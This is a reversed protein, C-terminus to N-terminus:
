GRPIVVRQLDPSLTRVFQQVDSVRLKEALQPLHGAVHLAGPELEVTTVHVDGPTLLPLRFPPLRRLGSFRRTGAVLTTPDLVLFPGEVRVDMEVAGLHPRDRLRFRAVADDDIDVEIRRGVIDPVWTALDDVGVTAGFTIPSAVLTPVMGPRLHVNSAVITLSSVRRRQWELDQVVVRIDELQGIALGAGSTVSLDVIETTVEEGGIVFTRRQGALSTKVAAAMMQLVQAPGALLLEPGPITGAAKIARDM